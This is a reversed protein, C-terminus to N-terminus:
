IRKQMYLFDKAESIIQKGQKNITDNEKKRLQNNKKAHEKLVKCFKKM